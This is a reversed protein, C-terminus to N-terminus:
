AHNLHAYEFFALRFEQVIQHEFHTGRNERRTVHDASSSFHGTFHEDYGVSNQFDNPLYPYTYLPPSIFPHFFFFFSIFTRVIVAPILPLNIGGLHWVTASRKPFAFRFLLLFCFCFNFLDFCCEINHVRTYKVKDHRKKLLCHFPCPESWCAPRHNKRLSQYEWNPRVSCTLPFFILRWSM